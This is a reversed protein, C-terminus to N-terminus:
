VMVGVKGKKNPSKPSSPELGRMKPPPIPNPPENFAVRPQAPPIQFSSPRSNSQPAPSASKRRTPLINIAVGPPPIYEKTIDREIPSKRDLIQRQLIPSSQKPIVPSPLKAPVHDHVSPATQVESNNRITSRSQYDEQKRMTLAELGKHVGEIAVDIPPQSTSALLHRLSSRGLSRSASSVRTSGSLSSSTSSVRRSLSGNPTGRPSADRQVPPTAERDHVAPPTPERIYQDPSATRPYQSAPPSQSAPPTYQGSANLVAHQHKLQILGRLGKVEETGSSPIASLVSASPAEPPTEMESPTELSDSSLRSTRKPPGLRTLRGRRPYRATSHGLTSPAPQRNM